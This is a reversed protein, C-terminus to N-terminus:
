CLSLLLWFRSRGVPHMSVRVRVWDSVRVRVRAGQFGPVLSAFYHRVLLRQSHSALSCPPMAFPRQRQRTKDQRTNAQSPKDQSPKAQSLEARSTEDRRTKDQGTGDRRTEARSQEARSRRRRKFTTQKRKPSGHRTSSRQRTQSTKKRKALFYAASKSCIGM